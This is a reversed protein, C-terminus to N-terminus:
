KENNGFFVGCVICVGLNGSFNILYDDVNEYIIFVSGDQDFINLKSGKKLLIDLVNMIVDVKGDVGVEFNLLDGVYYGM